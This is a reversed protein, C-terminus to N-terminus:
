KILFRRKKKLENKIEFFKDRFLAAKEFELNDAAKKMEDELIEIMAWPDKSEVGIEIKPSVKRKAELYETINKQITQPTINNIRNYEEQKKRRRETEVIAKRMSETMEDAFMIVRGDINRACRGFVQILSTYSRLFGEKDADFIAVLSVEPLDLGERLLNIGVLVSYRGLRLDRLIEVRKITEIDSHLYMCDIGEKSLYDALDEALRKTLTTVLVRQNKEVRKKIESILYPIQGEEKRIEIVPDVVGTPRVLQEVVRQSIGLEYEDPTASVYIKQDVKSLFEDFRLPRNDYASPLRFGYDILNKKRARDGEYMGRLQPITVHSEDIITLFDSPFYDLLTAPPEGEKRGSLHRSYNEIGHCYGTTQLMEMDFRTREVIRQAEILKNRERFWKEREILEEEITQLARKLRSQSTLFHKAPYIVAKNVYTKEKTLLDIIAIREIEDSFFELRITKESHSPFIDMIEGKVRFEGRKPSIDNRKYQLRVLESLLSNRDLTDSVSFSITSEQWDEPSGLNYICSVSAVIVVDNRTMLASTAGLRLRDIEENIDCDKEIYTDTSPIYAEPQYYDYFSVFYCVANEPFLEKFESYLQAALTKNHSIVLTPKNVQAIVNAMTFTKGSGTVGLLVQNSFDKRIGDVLEAIANPQDGTPKFKSRPRFEM